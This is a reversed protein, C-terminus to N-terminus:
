GRIHAGEGAPDDRWPQTLLAGLRHEGDARFAPLGLVMTAHDGAPQARYTGFLKDWVVLNFGFNTHMEDARVGHHVRHVDPTVWVTRLVADIRAPIALNAHNFMALANLTIEFAVVAEPPPGLVQVWALKYAISLLIEVPHFRLATSVDFGTDAHHVRHLRWLWSVRHFLLHQLWIAFDLAVWGVVMAAGWPLSAMWGGHGWRAAAWAAPLLPVAVRVVAQDLVVMALNNGIRGPVSPPTRRPWRREALAMVVGVVLFVAVRLGAENM